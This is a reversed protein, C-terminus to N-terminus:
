DDAITLIQSLHETQLISVHVPHNASAIPFIEFKLARISPHFPFEKYDLFFALCTCFSPFCYIYGVMLRQDEALTCHMYKLKIKFQLNCDM